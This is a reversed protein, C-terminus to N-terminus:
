ASFVLLNQWYAVDTFCACVSILHTLDNNTYPDMGLFIDKFLFSNNIFNTLEDVMYDFQLINTLEFSSGLIQQYSNRKDKSFHLHYDCLPRPRQEILNNCSFLERGLAVRPRQEEHLLMNWDLNNM